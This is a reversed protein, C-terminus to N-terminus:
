GARAPLDSAPPIETDPSAAGARSDRLEKREAATLWAEAPIGYTDSLKQRAVYDPRTLGRVWSSVAQQSVGVKAAVVAQSSDTVIRSLREKGNIM